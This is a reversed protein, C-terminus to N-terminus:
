WIKIRNFGSKLKYVPGIASKDTMSVGTIDTNLLLGTGDPNEYGQEVIRAKGLDESSVPKCLVDLLGEPVDMELYVGSEERVIEAKCGSDSIYNCEERDFGCAGNFYANRDIYVPQREKEYKEVDGIGHSRVRQIYEEMSVPAENYNSTGYSKGEETGGIFINQYWRDDFGYVIASGKVETSHPLHYPTSRKLVTKNFMFGCILNNVYAGGQAFNDIAYNDMFLNHDVLYPGHTVEVMFDRNNKDYINCSVRVGQIQWDLWTGLTCDHIYNHHIYTDIPAHFKIGALEHGYYEHKTGIRYIENEYIESFASGMHGVIGNQGCEYIKNRRVVHSGIKEKSWGARLGNFVAEMQYQYGPKNGFRTFEQNGTSIEKGLSIGCCKSDHIINDEIIWGKSWNVGLLGPQDGTPPSWPTAAHAMEFGKVTIYNIGTEEPMFCSRRVNIEALEENPNAGHFNAYITTTKDDSECYWRYITDKSNYILEERNQWTRFLGKERVDPNIVEELSYAEYFSKGNLYVDGLHIRYERPAELWDGDLIMKYPNYDGFFTDPLTVKWVNEQVNEWGTIHESGKICVNEGEAAMYTIRNINDNGGFRPKIWERYTGERVIVTDGPRAMDAAKQITLFPFKLSGDNSDSGNKAVYYIRVMVKCAGISIFVTKLKIYTLFFLYVYKAM